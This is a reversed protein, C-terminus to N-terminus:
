LLYHALSAPNRREDTISSLCHHEILFSWSCAPSMRHEVPCATYETWQEEQQICCIYTSRMVCRCPRLACEYASSIWIWQEAPFATEAAITIDLTTAHMFSRYQRDLPHCSVSWFKICILSLNIQCPVRTWSLLTFMSLISSSASDRYRHWGRDTAQTHYRSPSSDTM